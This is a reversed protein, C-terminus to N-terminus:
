IYIHAIDLVRPERFPCGCIQSPGVRKYLLSIHYVQPTDNCSVAVNKFIYIIYNYIYIIWLCWRGIQTDSIQINSFYLSMVKFLPIALQSPGM